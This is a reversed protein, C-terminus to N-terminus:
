PAHAAPVADVTGIPVGDRCSALRKVTLVIGRPLGFREVAQRSYESCTPRYRCAIYTKTLPRGERQYLDVMGLYLGALFQNHPQRSLDAAVLLVCAAALLLPIIRRRLRRQLAPM